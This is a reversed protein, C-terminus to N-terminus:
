RSSYTAELFLYYPIFKNFGEYGEDILDFKSWAMISRRRAAFQESLELHQKLIPQFREQV